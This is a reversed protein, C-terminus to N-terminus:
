LNAPRKEDYLPLEFWFEVGDEVNAAGFHMQHLNMIQKVISLGLGTGGEGRTRAKDVKYFSTWIPELEEEPIHPGTNHVSVRLTNGAIGTRIRIKNKDNLFFVANSVYNNLVQNIKSRDGFVLCPSEEFELEFHIRRKAYLSQFRSVSTQISDHIDFVEQQLVTHGSELQSLLLLERVLENMKKAEDIIVDCYENRSETDEHVNQRLGEAYGQILAIPTKLEHSVNSVFQKRMREMSNKRELEDELLENKGRLEEIFEGIIVMLRNMNDGLNGLEDKRTGKWRESFDFQIIRHTMQQLTVIPKSFYSAFRTAIVWGVVIFLVLAILYFENMITVSQQIAPMYLPRPLPGLTLAHLTSEM